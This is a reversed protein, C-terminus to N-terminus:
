LVSAFPAGIPHTEVRTLRIGHLLSAETSTVMAGLRSRLGDSEAFDLPAPESSQVPPPSTIPPTTHPSLYSSLGSSSARPSSKASFLTATNATDAIGSDDPCCFATVALESPHRLALFTPHCRNFLLSLHPTVTFSLM